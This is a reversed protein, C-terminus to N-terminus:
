RCVCMSCVCLSVLGLRVELEDEESLKGEESPEEVAKEDKKEDKALAAAAAEAEANAAAQAAREAAKAERIASSPPCFFVFCAEKVTHFRLVPNFADPMLARLPKALRSSFLFFVLQNLSLNQELIASKSKTFEGQRSAQFDLLAQKAMEDRQAALEANTEKAKAM